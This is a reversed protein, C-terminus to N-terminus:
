RILKGLATYAKDLDFIKKQFLSHNICDQEDKSLSDWWVQSKSNAM